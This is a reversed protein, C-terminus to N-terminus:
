IIVGGKYSSSLMKNFVISDGIDPKIELRITDGSQPRSGQPIQITLVQQDGPNITGKAPNSKIIQVPKRGNTSLNYHIKSIEQARGTTPTRLTFTLEELEGTYFGIVPGDLLINPSLEVSVNSGNGNTKQDERKSTDSRGMSVTSLPNVLSGGYYDKPLQSKLIVPDGTGSVPRVELKFEEGGRPQMNFPLQLTVLQTEGPHLTGSGPNSPLVPIPDMTGASWLYSVRPLYQPDKNQPIGITFTIESLGSNYKGLLNGIIVIASEPPKPTWVPSPTPTPTRNEEYTSTNNDAQVPIFVPTEEPLVEDPTVLPQIPTKNGGSLGPAMTLILVSIIVVLILLSVPILFRKFNLILVPKPITFRSGEPLRSYAKQVIQNRNQEYSTNGPDYKLANDYCNVAEEIKGIKSFTVGLANWAKHNKENESVATYLLQIAEQYNGDRYAKLGKHFSDDIGM